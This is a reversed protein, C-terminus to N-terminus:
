QSVDICVLDGRHHYHFPQQPRGELRAILNRALLPAQQVAVQSTPALPQEDEGRFHANDGLAYVNPYDSVGLYEDVM